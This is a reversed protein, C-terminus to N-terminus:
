SSLTGVGAGVAEGVSAGVVSGVRDGVYARRIIVGLGEAKGLLAGVTDGVSVGVYTVTPLVVAVVAV